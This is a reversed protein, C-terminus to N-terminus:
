WIFFCCILCARIFLLEMRKNGEFPALSLFIDAQTLLCFFLEPIEAVMLRHKQFSVIFSM